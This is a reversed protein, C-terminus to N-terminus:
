AVRDGGQRRTFDIRGRDRSQGLGMVCQGLTEGKWDLGSEKVLVFELPTGVIALKVVRYPAATTILAVRCASLPRRLPQFAVDVHHAWEYPAGYGLAQYYTRIRPLYAIPADNMRALM